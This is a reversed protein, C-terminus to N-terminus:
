PGRIEDQQHLQGQHGNRAGKRGHPWRSHGKKELAETVLCGRVRWPRRPGSRFHLYRYQMYYICIYIIDICPRTPNVKMRGLTTAIKRLTSSPLVLVAQSALGTAQRTRPKGKLSGSLLAVKYTQPSLWATCEYCFPVRTCTYLLQVRVDDKCTHICVDQEARQFFRFISRTEAYTLGGTSKAPLLSVSNHGAMTTEIIASQWFGLGQFPVMCELPRNNPRREVM